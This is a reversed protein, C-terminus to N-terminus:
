MKNDFWGEGWNSMIYLELTIWILDPREKYLGLVYDYGPALLFQEQADLMEQSVYDPNPILEPEDPTDELSVFNPNSIMPPLNAEFRIKMDTYVPDEIPEFNEDRVWMLMNNNIEFPRAMKNMSNSIDIGEKFFKIEYPIFIEKSPDVINIGLIHIEREIDNLPYPLNPIKKILIAM